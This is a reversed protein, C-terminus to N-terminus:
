RIKTGCPITTDAGTCSELFDGSNPSLISYTEAQETLPNCGVCPSSFPPPRCHPREQLMGRRWGDMKEVMRGKGTGRKKM